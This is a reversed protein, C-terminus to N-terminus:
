EAAHNGGQGAVPRLPLSRITGVLRLLRAQELFPGLVSRPLEPGELVEALAEAAGGDDAVPEVDLAGFPVVLREEADVDTGVLRLCALLEPRRSVAVLGTGRAAVPRTGVRGHVAVEDETDAGLSLQEADVRLPLLLPALVELIIQAAGHHRAPAVGLGGEDI